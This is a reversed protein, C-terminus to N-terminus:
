GLRWAEVWGRGAPKNYTGFIDAVRNGVPDRGPLQPRDVRQPQPERTGLHDRRCRCQEFRCRRPCRTRGTAPDLWFGSPKANGDAGTNHSETPGIRNSDLLGGFPGNAMVLTVNVIGLKSDLVVQSGPVIM